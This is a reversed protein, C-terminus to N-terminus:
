MASRWRLRSAQMLVLQLSWTWWTRLRSFSLSGGGYRRTLRKVASHKVPAGAAPRDRVVLHRRHM